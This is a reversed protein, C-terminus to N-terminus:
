KIGSVEGTTPNVFFPRMAIQIIENKDSNLGTTEVDLVVAPVDGDQPKRDPPVLSQFKTLVVLGDNNELHKM